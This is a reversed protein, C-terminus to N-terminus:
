IINKFRNRVGLKQLRDISKPQKEETRKSNATDKDHKSQKMCKVNKKM